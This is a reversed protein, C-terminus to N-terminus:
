RRCAPAAPPIAWFYPRRTSSPKTDTKRGAFFYEGNVELNLLDIAEDFRTRLYRQMSTKGTADPDYQPTATATSTSADSSIKVLSTLNLNLQKVRYDFRTITQQYGEVESLKARMDLSTIRQTGLGGFTESRKGTALQRQLDDMQARTQLLLEAASSSKFTGLRLPAIAM